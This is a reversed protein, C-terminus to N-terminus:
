RQWRTRGVPPGKRAPTARTPARAPAAKDTTAPISTAVKGPAPSGEATFDAEQQALTAPEPAPTPKRRTM